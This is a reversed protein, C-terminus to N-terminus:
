KRKKHYKRRLSERHQNMEDKDIEGNKNTDIEKFQKDHYKKWETKSVKGSKDIDMKSHKSSCMGKKGQKGHHQKSTLPLTFVALLIISTLIIIKSKM